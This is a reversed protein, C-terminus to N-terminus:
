TKLTCFNIMMQLNRNYFEMSSSLRNSLYVKLTLQVKKSGHCYGPATCHVSINSTSLGSEVAPSTCKATKATHQLVMSSQSTADPAEEAGEVERGINKKCELRDKNKVVLLEYACVRPM